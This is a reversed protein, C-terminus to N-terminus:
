SASFYGGLVSGLPETDHDCSGAVKGREQILHIIWNVDKFLIKMLDM